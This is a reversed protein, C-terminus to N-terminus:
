LTSQLYVKKLRIKDSDEMDVPIDLGLTDPGLIRVLSIMEKWYALTVDLIKIAM